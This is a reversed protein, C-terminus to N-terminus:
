FPPTWVIFGVAKLFNFLNNGENLTKRPFKSLVKSIELKNRKPFYYMYKM